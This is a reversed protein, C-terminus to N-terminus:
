EKDKIYFQDPLLKRAKKLNYVPSPLGQEKAWIYFQNVGCFEGWPTVLIKRQPSRNEKTLWAQKQSISMRKKTAASPQRQRSLEGITARTKDTHSRFRHPSATDFIDQLNQSM